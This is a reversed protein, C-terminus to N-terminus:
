MISLGVRFSLLCVRRRGRSLGVKGWNRLGPTYATVPCLHYKISHIGQYNWLNKIEWLGM